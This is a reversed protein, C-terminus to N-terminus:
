RIAPRRGNGPAASAAAAVQATSPPVLRAAAVPGACGLAFLAGRARNAAWLRREARAAATGFVGVPHGRRPDALVADLAAGLLLGSALGSRRPM